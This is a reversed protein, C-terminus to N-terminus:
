LMLEKLTTHLEESTHKEQELNQKLLTKVDSAGLAKAQVILGQYQAIEFHENGLASMLAIQDHLAADSKEILSSAQNKIGTTAPHPATTEDFGLLQFVKQLNSIQERTEDMHHSFLQAIKKDKAVGHLEELAELSHHEMTLTSRLVYQILEEPTELHQQAM